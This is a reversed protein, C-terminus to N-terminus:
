ISRSFSHVSWMAASRQHQRLSRAEINDELGRLVTIEPSRQCRRHFRDLFSERRECVLQGLVVPAEHLHQRKTRLDAM